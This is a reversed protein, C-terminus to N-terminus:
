SFIAEPATALAARAARRGAERMEDFMHFELVGVGHVEPRIYLDAFSRRRADDAESLLMVKYITETLGPVEPQVGPALSRASPESVDVAIVPGEGDCAMAETPLNDMLGGDLLLMGDHVVPELFVPLAM